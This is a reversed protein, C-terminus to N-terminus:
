CILGDFCLVIPRDIAILRAVPYYNSSFCSRPMSALRTSPCPATPHPLGPGPLSARDAAFRMLPHGM